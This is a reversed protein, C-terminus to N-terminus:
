KSFEAKLNLAQSLTVTITQDSSSIDGSWGTFSCGDDPIATLTVPIDAFYTGSWGNSGIDPIVSNIKVKGLSSNNVNVTLTNVNGAYQYNQQLGQIFSNKRNSFFSKLNQVETRYSNDIFMVRWDPGFRKIQESMVPQYLANYKEIASNVKENSFNVNVIDMVTNLFLERFQANERYTKAFIVSDSNENLANKLADLDNMQSKGYVDSSFETDYLMWRWRGDGEADDVATRTRWMRYNNVLEDYFIDQNNIYIQVAYYDAMSQIDVMSCLKKYNATDSMDNSRVFELLDKYDQLDSDVGEEVESGCKIIVTDEKNYGYIENIYDSSYDEQLQYVGWYEGNIFAIAPRGEQTEIDRDSVLEQIMPDRFKVSNIDNAGNRLIFKDYKGNVKGTSTLADPILSYNVSGCGYESRAFFKLSKQNNSRSAGGQIRMGLNESFGLTGDSEFFDVHVAKEWERGEQTFNASKLWDQNPKVDPNTKLFEDYYKGTTYIGNEYNFLDDPEISVSVVPLNNYRSAMDLGVFYTKTIVKSVNGNEDVAVARIVTAKAVNENPTYLQGGDPYTVTKNASLVNPESSRDRVSITGTYKESNIDPLSGDTTYYVTCGSPASINLSFESSYFGSEASFEPVDVKTSDEENAQMPTPILVALNDTGDTYRGYTTDPELAPVEITDIVGKEPHTLCITEGSKSISFPAHLETEVSDYGTTAYVILYDHAKITVDPFTFRFPKNQSDSLGIGNLSIDSGSSNYLEIWDPHMGYSDTIGNVNSSCVENIKLGSYDVSSINESILQRMIIMDFADICTDGNLDANEPANGTRCLLFDQLMVADAGTVVGDDNLDGPLASATTDVATYNIASAFANLAIFGAAFKKLWKTKM